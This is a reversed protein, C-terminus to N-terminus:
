AYRNDITLITHLLVNAGAEIDSPRSYEDISHSIGGESPIFLLASPIHKGMNMLDHGAGSYMELTSYGM